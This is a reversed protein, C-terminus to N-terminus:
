DRILDNGDAATQRISLGALAKVIACLVGM